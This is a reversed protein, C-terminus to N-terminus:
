LRVGRREAHDVLEPAAQTGTIYVLDTFLGTGFAALYPARVTTAFADVVAVDLHSDALEGTILGVVRQEIVRGEARRILLHAPLKGSAEIRTVTADPHRLRAVEAVDDLRDPPRRPSGFSGDPLGDGDM